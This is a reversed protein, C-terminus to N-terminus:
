VMTMHSFMYSSGIRLINVIFIFTKEGEEKKWKWRQGRDERKRWAKKKLHKLGSSLPLLFLGCITM